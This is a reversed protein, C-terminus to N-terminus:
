LHVCQEKRRTLKRTSSHVHGWPGQAEAPITIAEKMVRVDKITCGLEM